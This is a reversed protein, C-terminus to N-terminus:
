EFVEFVLPLAVKCFGVAFILTKTSVLTKIEPSAEEV